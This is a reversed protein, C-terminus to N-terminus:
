DLNFLEIIKDFGLPKRLYGKVIPYEAAKAEDIKDLSSTIIYIEGSWYSCDKSFEDLFDWADWIPMNIDLLISDPLRIGENKLDMLGEFAQKGNRFTLIEDFITTFEIMKQTLLLYNPDDEIICITKNRMM